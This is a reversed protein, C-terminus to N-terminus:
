MEVGLASVLGFIDLNARLEIIKGDKWQAITYHLLDFSKGTPAIPASSLYKPLILEGKHKGSLFGITATWDGQGISQRYPQNELRLNPFATKMRELWNLYEQPKMPQDSLGYIKATSSLKLGELTFTGNNLADDSKKMSEKNTASSNGNGAGSSLPNATNLELDPLNPEPRNPLIGLQRYMLAEDTWLYEEMMWGNAWRAITMLDYDVPKNTPPLYGGALNQLPGNQIGTISEVAVTWDGEGFWIKYDHNHITLDTTAYTLQLGTLHESLNQVVSGQYVKITEDHNFRALDRANFADDTVQM